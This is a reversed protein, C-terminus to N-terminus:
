KFINKYPSYVFAVPSCRMPSPLLPLAAFTFPDIAALSLLETVCVGAGRCVTVCVLACVKFAETGASLFQAAFGMLELM